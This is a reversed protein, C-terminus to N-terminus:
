GSWLRGEKMEYELRMQINRIGMGDVIDNVLFGHSKYFFITASIVKLLCCGIYITAGHRGTLVLGRLSHGRRAAPFGIGLRHGGASGPDSASARDTLDPSFQHLLYRVYVVVMAVVVNVVVVNVVVYVVVIHEPHFHDLRRGM